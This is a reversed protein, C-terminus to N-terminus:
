AVLGVAASPPPQDVEYAFLIPGTQEFVPINMVRLMNAAYKAPKKRSRSEKPTQSHWRVCCERPAYIRVPYCVGNRRGADRHLATILQILTM